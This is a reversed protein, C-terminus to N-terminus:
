QALRHTFHFGIPHPWQSISQSIPIYPITQTRQDTSHDSPYRDSRATTQPFAAAPQNTYETCETSAAAAELVTANKKIKVKTSCSDTHFSRLATDM